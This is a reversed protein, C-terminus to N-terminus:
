ITSRYEELLTMLSLYFFYRAGGKSAVRSPGWLDSHIYQLPVKPIHLGKAFKVRNAKEKICDECFALPTLKRNGTLRQKHLEILSKESVHGLSLHWLMLKDQFKEASAVSGVLTSGDLIYLDNQQSGKMYVGKSISLKGNEAKFTYGMQDVLPFNFDKKTITCLVGTALDKRHWIEIKTQHEWYWHSQM